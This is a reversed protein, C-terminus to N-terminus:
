NWSKADPPKDQIDRPHKGDLISLVLSIKDRLGEGDLFLVYYNWNLTDGDKKDHLDFSRSNNMPM